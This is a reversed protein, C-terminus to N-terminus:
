GAAESTAKQASSMVATDLLYAGHCSETLSDGRFLGVM